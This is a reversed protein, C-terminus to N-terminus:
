TRKDASRDLARIAVSESFGLWSVLCLRHFCNRILKGFDKCGCADLPDEADDAVTQVSQRVGNAPLAPDFPNMDPMLFNSRERRTRLGMESALERHARSATPGAVQMEDVAQEVAM